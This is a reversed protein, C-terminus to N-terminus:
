WLDPVSPDQDVGSVQFGESPGAAKAIGRHYVGGGKFWADSEDMYEALSNVLALVEFAEETRIQYCKGDSDCMSGQPKGNVVGVAIEYEGWLMRGAMLALPQNHGPVMVM